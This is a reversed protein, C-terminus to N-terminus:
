FAPRRHDPQFQGGSCESTSLEIGPTQAKRESTALFYQHLQGPHVGAKPRRQRRGPTQRQHGALGTGGRQVRRGGTRDLWVEALTMDQQFIM